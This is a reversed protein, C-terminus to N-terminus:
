SCGSSASSDSGSRRGSPGRHRDADRVMCWCMWTAILTLLLAGTDGVHFIWFDGRRHVLAVISAFLTLHVMWAAIGASFAFWVLPGRDPFARTPPEDGRYAGLRVVVLLRLDVRRRRLALLPRVGRRSTTSRRRGQGAVGQDARRREDDARRVRPHRAIRHDHLLDLQLREHALGGLHLFDYATNVLFAAGMLFALLLGVRLQRRHGGRSPGSRSSRSAAASSCSPSSVRGSSSPRSSTAPPWHPSTARLLLLGLAARPLADGRDHDPRGDGVVRHPYGRVRATPASPSPRPRPPRRREGCTRTPGGRGGRRRGRDGRGRRRDRGARGRRATRRLDRRDRARARVAPVDALPIDLTDQPRADSGM